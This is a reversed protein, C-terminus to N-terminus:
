GGEDGLQDIELMAQIALHAAVGGHVHGHFIEGLDGFGGEEFGLIVCGEADDETELLYGM